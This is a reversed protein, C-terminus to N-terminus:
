IIHLPLSDLLKTTLFFMIPLLIASPSHILLWNSRVAFLMSILIALLHLLSIYFNFLIAEVSLAIIGTWFSVRLKYPSLWRAIRM